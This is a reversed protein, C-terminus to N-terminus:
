WPLATYALTSWTPRTASTVSAASSRTPVMHQTCAWAVDAAASAVQGGCTMLVLIALQQRRIAEEEDPVPPEQQLLLQTGALVPSLLELAVCRLRQNDEDALKHLLEACNVLQVWLM